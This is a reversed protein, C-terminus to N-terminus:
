TSLDVIRNDTFHFNVVTIDWLESLLDNAGIEDIITLDFEPKINAFSILDDQSVIVENYEITALNRGDSFEYPTEILSIQWGTGTKDQDHTNPHEIWWEVPIWIWTIYNKM